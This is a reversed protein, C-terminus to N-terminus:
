HFGNERKNITPENKLRRFEKLCETFIVGHVIFIFAWISTYLIGAWYSVNQLYGMYFSWSVFAMLSFIWAFMLFDFRNM